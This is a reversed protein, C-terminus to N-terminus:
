NGVQIHTLRAKSKNIRAKAEIRISSNNFLNLLFVGVQEKMGM